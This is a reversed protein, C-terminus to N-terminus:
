LVITEHPCVIRASFVIYEQSPIKSSFILLCKWFKEFTIKDLYLGSELFIIYPINHDSNHQSFVKEQLNKERWIFSLTLFYMALESDQVQINILLNVTYILFLILLTNLWFCLSKYLANKRIYYGFKYNFGYMIDFHWLNSFKSLIYM